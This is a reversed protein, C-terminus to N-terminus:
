ESGLEVIISAMAYNNGEELEAIENESDVTIRFNFEGIDIYVYTCNVLQTESVGLGDIDVSCAIVGTNVDPIFTVTFAGAAATGNNVIQIRFRATDRFFMRDPFTVGTIVLDPLNGGQGSQNPNASVTISGRTSNNNENSELIEQEADAYAMSSFEGAQGYGPYDCALDREQGAELSSIDWSCGILNSRYDPLWTATFAGATTNGSNLVVISVRVPEGADVSTDAIDLRRISLDPQGGSPQNVIPNDPQDVEPEVVDEIEFSEDIPPAAIVVPAQQPAPQVQAPPQVQALAGQLRSVVVDDVSVSTSDAAGVGITGRPLPNADTYDLTVQGDISVQIHGAQCAINIDHWQGQDLAPAQAVAAHTGIPFEKILYVGDAQFQLLYRGSKSWRFILSANGSDLNMRAAYNYDIAGGSKVYAAGAVQTGFTYVDGDQNITWGASIVWGDPNGDQFDDQFLINSDGAVGVPQQAQAQQEVEAQQDVQSSQEVVAPEPTQQAQRRARCGSSTLIIITILTFTIARKM